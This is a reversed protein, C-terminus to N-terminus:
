FGDDGRPVDLGLEAYPNEGPKIWATGQRGSEPTPEGLPTPEELGWGDDGSPPTDDWFEADAETDGPLQDLPNSLDTPDEFTEADPEDPMGWRGPAPPHEAVMGAGKISYPHADIREHYDATPMGNDAPEEELGAIRELRALEGARVARLEAAMGELRLAWREREEVHERHQGLVVYVLGLVAVLVVFVLMVSIADM